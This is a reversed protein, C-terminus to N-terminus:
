LLLYLAGARPQIAPPPVAVVTSSWPESIFYHQLLRIRVLRTTWSFFMCRSIGTPKHHCRDQLSGASNWLVGHKLFLIINFTSNKGTRLFLVHLFHLFTLFESREKGANWFELHSANRWATETTQHAFAKHTECFAKASVMLYSGHLLM